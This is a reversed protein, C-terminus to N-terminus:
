HQEEERNDKTIIEMHEGKTKQREGKGQEVREPEMWVKHGKRMWEKPLEKTDEMIDTRIPWESEPLRLNHLVTKGSQEM